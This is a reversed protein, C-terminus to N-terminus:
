CPVHTDYYMTCFVKRGSYCYGTLASDGNIRNSHYSCCDMLRRVHGGCCRYWSGDIWTRFHRDRGARVCIKTRPASPLRSATPIGCRTGASM